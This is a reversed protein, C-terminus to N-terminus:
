VMSRKKKTKGQIKEYRQLTFCVCHLSHFCFSSNDFDVSVFLDPKRSIRMEAMLINDSETLTRKHINFLHIAHHDLVPIPNHSHIIENKMKAVERHTACSLPCAQKITEMAFNYQYQTIMVHIVHVLAKHASEKVDLHLHQYGNAFLSDIQVV